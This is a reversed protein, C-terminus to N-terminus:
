FLYVCHLGNTISENKTKFFLLLFFFFFSFRWRGFEKFCILATSLRQFMKQSAPFDPIHSVECFRAASLVVNLPM